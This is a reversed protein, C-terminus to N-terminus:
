MYIYNLWQFLKRSLVKKYIHGGRTDGGFCMQCWQNLMTNHTLSAVTTQTNPSGGLSFTQTLHHLITYNYVVHVHFHVKMFALSEPPVSKSSPVKIKSTIFIKWVNVKHIISALSALCFFIYFYSLFLTQFGERVWWVDVGSGVESLDYHPGPGRNGGGEPDACSVRAFTKTRVDLSCRFLEHRIKLWSWTFSIWRITIQQESASNRQWM